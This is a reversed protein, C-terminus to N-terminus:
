KERLAKWGKGHMCVVLGRTVQQTRNDPSHAAGLQAVCAHTDTELSERGAGMKWWSSVKYTDMPNATPPSPSGTSATSAQRADSSTIPSKGSSLNAEDVPKSARRRDEDAGLNRNDASASATAFLDVDDLRTVAWGNDELCKEIAKEAGASQCTKRTAELDQASAGRKYALEGCGGLSVSILLIGFSTKMM